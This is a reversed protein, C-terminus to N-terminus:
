LNTSRIMLVLIRASGSGQHPDRQSDSESCMEAGAPVRAARAVTPVCAAKGSSRYIYQFVAKYMRHRHTYYLIYYITYLLIFIYIYTYYINHFIIHYIIYCTKERELSTAGLHLSYRPGYRFLYFCIYSRNCYTHVFQLNSVASQRAAPPTLPACGRIAVFAM